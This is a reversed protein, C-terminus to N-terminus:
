YYSTVMETSRLFDKLHAKVFDPMLDKSWDLAAMGQPITVAVVKAGIRVDTQEAARAGLLSLFLGLSLVFFEKM